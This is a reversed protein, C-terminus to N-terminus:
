RNPLGNASREARIQAANDVVHRRLEGLGQRQRGREARCADGPANPDPHAEDWALAQDIAAAWGAPDGGAYENISQGVTESLSAFLAPERDPPGPVCQIRIRARLQGVYFLAVAEDRKGQQFLAGAREYFQPWLAAEMGSAANSVPASDATSATGCSALLAAATVLVAHIRM